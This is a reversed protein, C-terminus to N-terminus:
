QGAEISISGSGTEVTLQDGGENITGTQHGKQADGSLIVMIPIESSISGFDTTLDVDLASDAPITLRIEGFESRVSHPGEGLSGEFEVPGSQTSLDLTVSDANKVTVSGFGSHAKVQGLVGDATVSGSSTQLDYSAAKVQEVDIEGFESGATVAGRVTLASLTVKGSNTEVNLVNASGSHFRADGFDTSMTVTGSARVDTMEIVGSKSDLTVDNGSARELSVTGFGSSLEINKGGANISSADVKGSHTDVDIGGAVNEVTVEGFDNLITVDGDVESVGVAGLGADVDVTADTPVAIIFDVTDLDRTNHDAVEYTLTIDNGDQRIDYEIDQLDLEARAQTFASATKVVRVTVQEGEGGTVTVDGADDIVQLNVPGDVDLTQSEETTAYILGQDLSVPSRALSFEGTAFLIITGIGVLVFLFAIVLLIIVVPRKM